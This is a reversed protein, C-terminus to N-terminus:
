VKPRDSCSTKGSISASLTVNVCPMSMVKTVLVFDSSSARSSNRDNPRGNRSTQSVARFGVCPTFCHRGFRLGDPELFLQLLELREAFVRGGRLQPRAVSDADPQPALHAAPRPRDQPLEADAPDAEAPHGGVAQDRADALRAPSSWEVMIVSGTASMNVRMRLATRTSFGATSIGAEPRLISRARTRLSSPNM